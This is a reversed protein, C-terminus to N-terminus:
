TLMRPRKTVVGPFRAGDLWHISGGAIRFSKGDINRSIANICVNALPLQMLMGNELARYATELLMRQQPDMSMAERATISFFSADFLALDEELFNGGRM